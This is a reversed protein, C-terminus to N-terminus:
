GLSPFEIINNSKSEIINELKVAWINLATQKEAFYSHRDYVATVGREAHNLIKSVVLRNVGLMTMHSAATRRLDHPIFQDIDLNLLNKRVARDVSQGRVHAEKIPSPFLWSNSSSIVRIEDLLSKALRSLPVEHSLKNKSKESPINWVSRSTDFEEWRASIVEGKRQSTILMFKLALQIEVSIETHELGHWLKYIENDNLARERQTEKSPPKVQSCPNQNVLEKEIGFNYMKRICSLTRNAQIEAGREVIGDILEIIHRRKIDCAKRKGLLPLVDKILMREDEKWSRKQRKAWKEIYIEALDNVTPSAVYGQRQRSKELGPDIGLELKKVSHAHLTHADALTVQPYTGLTMRRAKGEFRYMFVWSKRGSPSVRLGFGQRNDEWVEYRIQRPKLFRISTNTFKL